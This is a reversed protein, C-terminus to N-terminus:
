FDGLAAIAPSLAATAPRLARPTRRLRSLPGPELHWDLRLLHQRRLARFLSPEWLPGDGREHQEDNDDNDFACARSFLGVNPSSPSCSGARFVSGLAALTSGM